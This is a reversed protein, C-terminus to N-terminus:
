SLGKHTDTYLLRGNLDFAKPMTEIFSTHATNNTLIVWKGLACAEIIELNYGEARCPAVLCDASQMLAAVHNQTPLREIFHFHKGLKSNKYYDM